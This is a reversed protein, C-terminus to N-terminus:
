AHQEAQVLPQGDDGAHEVDEVVRRELGRQEHRRADDVVLGPGAVQALKVPEDREHRDRRRQRHDRRRRHRAHRQEVAEQRLLHEEGLRDREVHVASARHSIGHRGRQRRREGHGVAHAEDVVDEEVALRHPQIARRVLRRPEHAHRDLHQHQHADRDAQEGLLHDARQERMAAPGGSSPATGSNLRASHCPQFRGSAILAKASTAPVTSYKPRCRNRFRCLNRGTSSGPLRTNSPASAADYSAERPLRGADATGAGAGAHDLPDHERGQDHGRPRQQLVPEPRRRPPRGDRHAHRLPDDARRDPQEADRRRDDRDRVVPTAQHRQDGDARDAERHAEGEGHEGRGVEGQRLQEDLHDGDDQHHHHEVVERRLRRGFGRAAPQPGVARERHGRSTPTAAM